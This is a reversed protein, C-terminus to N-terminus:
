RRPRWGLKLMARKPRGSRKLHHEDQSGSPMRFSAADNLGVLDRHSLLGPLYCPVLGVDMDLVGQPRDTELKLLCKLLAAYGDLPDNPPRVQLSYGQVQSTCLNPDWRTSTWRQDNVDHPNVRGLVSSTPGVCPYHKMIKGLFQDLTELTIDFCGAVALQNRFSVLSVVETVDAMTSPLAQRVRTISVDRGNFYEKGCSERFKGTWFSKHTGVVAGFLQLTRVISLVHRTPVILDDGYVQVQASLSKMDKRNLPANLEKQIGLFILTTFVMAEIPFCLASGMSAYKALRIVGHGPVRARRSRSAQIAGQLHPWKATMAMVLQNSVRDSAESLDLTSTLGDMSGSRALDQNPIQDEFGILKPLLEDRSYAALFCRLLAQQCYQMAAPEIAIIRPTKLTKPVSIVKVPLEEGPELFDVRDLEDTFHHNPVLYKYAPFYADLRKTWTRLQYKGNSTLGDAVAGPGHKPLLNGYYIDSDMQSFVSGFLKDSVSVFERIDKETLNADSLRVEQECQVYSSMAKKTRADSCPFSIKEFALTLQRIAFIATIDPEDLLAGTDLDFVRTFFGRLFVPLSRRGYSFSPHIGVQGQDLWKQTAKGLDPLTITLFSLGEKEVRMSVTNIDANASTCCAIALDHAM